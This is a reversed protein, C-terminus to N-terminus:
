PDFSLIVTELLSRELIRNTHKRQVRSACLSRLKETIQRFVECVTGDTHERYGARWM